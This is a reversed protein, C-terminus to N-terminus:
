LLYFLYYSNLYLFAILLHNQYCLIYRLYIVLVFLKLSKFEHTVTCAVLAQAKDAGERQLAAVAGRATKKLSDIM